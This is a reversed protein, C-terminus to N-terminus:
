LNIEIFGHCVAHFLFLFSLVLHLRLSLAIRSVHRWEFERCKQSSDIGFSNETYISTNCSKVERKKMLKEIFLYSFMQADFLNFIVFIIIKSQIKKNFIKCYFIIFQTKIWRGSRIFLHWFESTVYYTM